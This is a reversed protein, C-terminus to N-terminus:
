MTKVDKLEIAFVGNKAILEKYNDISEVSKVGEELNNTSSLTYKTGENELLDRVTKYLIKRKIVCKIREDNGSKKFIIIDGQQMLNVSNESFDSESARIEIRKQNIKIAEFARGNLNKFFTRM